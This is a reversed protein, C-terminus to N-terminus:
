IHILSLEKYTRRRGNGILAINDGFGKEVMADTLEFGVNLTEPYKFDKLNYTPQLIEEPLNERAFNDIHSSPSLKM